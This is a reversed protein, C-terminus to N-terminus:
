VKASNNYLHVLRLVPHNPPFPFPTPSPTPLPFTARHAHPHQLRVGVIPREPSHKASNWPRCMPFAGKHHFLLERAYMPM